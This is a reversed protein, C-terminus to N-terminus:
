GLRTPTPTFSLGGRLKDRLCQVLHSQDFGLAVCTQNNEINVFTDYLPFTLRFIVFTNGNPL